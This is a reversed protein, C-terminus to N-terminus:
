RYHRWHGPACAIALLVDRPGLASRVRRQGSAIGSPSLHPLAVLAFVMTGHFQGGDDVAAIPRGTAVGAGARASRSASRAFAGAGLRLGGCRVPWRSVAVEDSRRRRLHRSRFGTATARLQLMKPSLDFATLIADPDAHKLLFRSYRGNGCGADLIHKCGRVDFAEPRILRGALAEHGTLLGTVSTLAGPLGDYHGQIFRRYDLFSRRAPPSDPTPSTM